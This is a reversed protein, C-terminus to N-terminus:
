SAGEARLGGAQQAIVVCDANLGLAEEGSAVVDEFLIASSALPAFLM